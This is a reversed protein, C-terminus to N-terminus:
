KVAGREDHFPISALRRERIAKMESWSRADECAKCLPYSIFRDRDTIARAHADKLVESATKVTGDENKNFPNVTMEVTFARKRKPKQCARCTFTCSARGKYAPFTVLM